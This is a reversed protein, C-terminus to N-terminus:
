STTGKVLAIVKRADELCGCHDYATQTLCHCDCVCGNMIIDRAERELQTAAALWAPDQTETTQHTDTM